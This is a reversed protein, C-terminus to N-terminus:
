WGTGGGGSNGSGSSIGGSTTSSGGSGGSSANGGSGGSQNISPMQMSKFYGTNIAQIKAGSAPSPHLSSFAVQNAYEEGYWQRMSERVSELRLNNLEPDRNQAVLVGRQWEPYNQMLVEIKREGMRNLRGTDPEFHSDCLTCDYALGSSYMQHWTNLYATRDWCAFPKPWAQNREFMKVHQEHASSAFTAGSGDWGFQGPGGCNSSQASLTSTAACALIAATLALLRRSPLKM